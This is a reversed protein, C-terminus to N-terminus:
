EHELMIQDLEERLFHEDPDYAVGRWKKIKIKEENWENHWFEGNWAAHYTHGKATEVEYKGARVPVTKAPFWDTMNYKIDDMNTYKEFEGDGLYLYFGYDSSKGSTSGGINEIEEDNYSAGNVIEEGDIEDYNICLKEPDFPERLEIEGEFFTGKDTTRGIFVVEGPNVMGIWAEDGCSINIDTGDISSLEREVVTDGNQDCIQLTGANQSVGYCHALDDCDYYNGPYFPHMDEPINNEEAYEESWAFDSVDLRRQKFYDYIKRDVRGMVIEGGYGWMQITYTCPTFKLIEILKEQEEIKKNQNM